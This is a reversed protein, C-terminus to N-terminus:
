APSAHFRPAYELLVSLREEKGDEDVVAFLMSGEFWEAGPHYQEAAEEAADEFSYCKERVEQADEVTEGHEPIYFRYRLDLGGML